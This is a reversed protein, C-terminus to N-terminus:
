GGGVVPPVSADGRRPWFVMLIAGVKKAIEAFNSTLSQAAKKGKLDKITKIKSDEPVAVVWRVPTLRM